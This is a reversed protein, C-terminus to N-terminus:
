EHGFKKVLDTEGTAIAMIGQALKKPSGSEPAGKQKDVPILAGATM